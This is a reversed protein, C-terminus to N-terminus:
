KMGKLNDRSEEIGVQIKYLMHVFYVLAAAAVIYLVNTSGLLELALVVLGSALIMTAFLGLLKIAARRQPSLNSIDFM